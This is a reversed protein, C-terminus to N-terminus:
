IGKNLGKNWRGTRGNGWVNGKEKFDKISINQKCLHRIVLLDCMVCGPISCIVFWVTMVHKVEVVTYSSTPNYSTINNCHISYHYTNTSHFFIIAKFWKWWYNPLLFLDLLFSNYQSETRSWSNKIINTVSWGLLCLQYHNRQLRKSYVLCLIRMVLIDQKIYLALVKINLFPTHGSQKCIWVLRNFPLM